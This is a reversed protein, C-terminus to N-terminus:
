QKRFLSLNYKKMLEYFRAQSIDSLQCARKRDGRAKEIVLKLYAKEFSARYEAITPFKDHIEKKNEPNPGPQEFDDGSSEFPIKLAATRYEPPLHKPYLTPDSGVSAVAAELVNILERVNGPWQNQKLVSIFEPSIGKIGVKYDQCIKQIQYIAIEELDLLVIDFSNKLSLDLGERITSAKNFTHGWSEIMESIFMIIKPDDDVVLFHAM